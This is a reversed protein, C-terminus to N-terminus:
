KPNSSFRNERQRSNLIEIDLIKFVHWTKNKFLSFVHGNYGSARVKFKLDPYVCLFLNLM